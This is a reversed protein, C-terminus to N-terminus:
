VAEWIPIQLKLVVIVGATEFETNALELKTIGDEALLWRRMHGAIQLESLQIM